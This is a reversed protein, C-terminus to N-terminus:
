QPVCCLTVYLLVNLEITKNNARCMRAYEFEVKDDCVCVCVVCMRSDLWEGRRGCTSRTDSIRVAIAPDSM